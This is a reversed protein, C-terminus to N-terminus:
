ASPGEAQLHAALVLGVPIMEPIVTGTFLDLLRRLDQRASADPGGGPDRLVPLLNAADRAAAARVEAAVREHEGSALLPGVIDEVAPLLAPWRALHLYLSPTVGARMAVGHHAALRDVRALVDGSLDDRRPIAPVSEVATEERLEARLTEDPLTADLAQRLCTLTILNLSNGLNYIEILRCAGEPAAFVAEEHRIPAFRTRLGEAAFGAMGNAVQPRVTRWAWDLLGPRSALHRWILNVNPVGSVARLDRYLAAIAPPAEAERVEEIATM